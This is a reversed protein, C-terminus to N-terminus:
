KLRLILNSVDKDPITIELPSEDGRYKLPVAENSGFVLVRYKGPWAGDADGNTLRLAFSGDKKSIAMPYNMEMPPAPAGGAPIHLPTGKIPVAFGEIHETPFFNVSVGSIPRGQADVIKGTVKVYKPPASSRSCGLLVTAMLVTVFCRSCSQASKMDMM